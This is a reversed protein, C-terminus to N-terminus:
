HEYIGSQSVKTNEFCIEYWLSPQEETLDIIISQNKKEIPDTLKEKRHGREDLSYITITSHNMAELENEHLDFTLTLPIPEVMPPGSGWQRGVSNHEENWVMGKNEAYGTATLLWSTGQQSEKMFSLLVNAWGQKTEGVSLTVGHHLDISQDPTLGIFGKSWPSRLTFFCAEPNEKNWLIEKTESELKRGSRPIEPQQSPEPNEGFRLRTPYTYLVRAPIDTDDFPHYWSSGNHDTLRDLYNKYSVTEIFPTKGSQVDGRLFLNAVFPLTLMKPTHGYIDFFSNISKNEYDTSHSYSYLFIGDWDHFAAYSALLPAGESSYTNPAPHNYESVIYPYGEIKSKMLKELTHDEANLISLNPVYWDEADWPNNPFRPHQWYGHIDIVDNALQSLFTGFGLQTGVVLSQAGLEDQIYRKMEEYYATERTVIFEIWDRRTGQSRQAFQERSVWAINEKELSEDPNLGQPGMEIISPRAIFLDGTEDALNSLQLRANQDEQNPSFTFEYEKWRPLVEVSKSQDLNQWPSHDMKISVRIDRTSDSKLWLTVKYLRGKKFHLNPYFTQIHWSERGIKETTIKLAPENEPGQEVIEKTGAAEEIEQFVWRNLNSALMEEDSGEFKPTWAEQLQQDSDYQDQLFLNWDNQLPEHYLSPLDDLEYSSWKNALGSENNIEILAICPEDAYRTKTYPNYHLLLDRAYNKQLDILRPFYHDPGKDYTPLRDPYLIEDASVTERGVKLNIDSYIGHQKLQYIFYDLRDLNEEDLEQKEPTGSKWLGRPARATDMHHHRVCNVGYKALRAAVHEAQQHSPFNGNFSMNVGLIRFRKGRGDVFHGEEVQIFGHKGAPKDLLHSVNTISPSADDWPLPFPILETSSTFLPNVIMILSFTLSFSFSKM